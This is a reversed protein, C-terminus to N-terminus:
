CTPDRTLCFRLTNLYSYSPRLMRRTGKARREPQQMSNNRTHTPPQFASRKTEQTFIVSWEEASGNDWFPAGGRGERESADIADPLASFSPGPEDLLLLGFGKLKNCRVRDIFSWSLGLAWSMDACTLICSGSFACVMDPWCGRLVAGTRGSSRSRDYRCIIFAVGRFWEASRTAGRAAGM